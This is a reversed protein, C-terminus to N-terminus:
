AHAEAGGPLALRATRGSDAPPSLRLARATRRRFVAASKASDMTTSFGASRGHFMFYIFSYVDLYTTKSASVFSGAGQDGTQYYGSLRVTEQHPPSPVQRLNDMSHVTEAASGTANLSLGTLLTLTFLAFPKM